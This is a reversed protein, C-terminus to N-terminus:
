GLAYNGIVRDPRGKVITKEIWIHNEKKPVVTYGFSKLMQFPKAIKNGFDELTLEKGGLIKHAESLVLIPPYKMGNELVLDYQSSERGKLLGPNADIRTIAQELSSRTLKQM